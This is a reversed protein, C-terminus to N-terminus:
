DGWLMLDPHHDGRDDSFFTPLTPNDEYILKM